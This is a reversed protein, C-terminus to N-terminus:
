PSIDVELHIRTSNLGSWIPAEGGGRARRIITGLRTQEEGWRCGVEGRTELIQGCRRMGLAEEQTWVAGEAEKSWLTEQRRVVEM